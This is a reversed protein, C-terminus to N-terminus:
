IQIHGPVLESGLRRGNSAACRPSRQSGTRLSWPGSRAPYYRRVDLHGRRGARRIVRERVRDVVRACPASLTAILAMGLNVVNKSEAELYSDPCSVACCCASCPVELSAAFVIWSIGIASVVQGCRVTGSAHARCEARNGASLWSVFSAPASM